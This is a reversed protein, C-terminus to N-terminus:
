DLCAHIITFTFKLHVMSHPHTIILLLMRMGQQAPEQVAETNQGLNDTLTKAFERAADRFDLAGYEHFSLSYQITEFTLQLPLSVVASIQICVLSSMQTNHPDKM